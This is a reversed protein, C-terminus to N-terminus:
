TCKTHLPGISLRTGEQPPSAGPSLCRPASAPHLNSHHGFYSRGGVTGPGSPVDCPLPSLTCKKMPYLEVMVCSGVMDDYVTNGCSPGGCEM